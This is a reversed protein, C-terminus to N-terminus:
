DSGFFNGKKFFLFKVESGYLFSCYGYELLGCVIIKKLVLVYELLEVVNDLFIVNLCM